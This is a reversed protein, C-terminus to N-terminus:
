SNLRDLKNKAMLLTSMAQIFESQAMLFTNHTQTLDMSSAVGEKYKVLTVDYVKNSLTMNAKTHSYNEFASDLDSQASAAELSLGEAAQQKANKAQEVAIAAKQVRAKQAGSKFIPINVNVGVLETQYWKEDSSFFNFSNRMANWQFTMFAAVTPLYKMKENKLDMETLKEQTKLLSFDINDELSFGTSHLTDLDIQELIKDLKDVLLIEENLDLGMQFKLLKFTVDQQRKITQLANKLKTVSIQVLDADTEAVFGEKYLENIEYHTKELNSLNGNLIRQSEELVLILYYTNTVTELVNLKTREHNQNALQKYIKAAQLGVFYSGNFLLQSVSFNVNTNHQTGFQVAIMEDFKGEFFNPILVTALKLNNMYGISSEIQPLGIALTEKMQKQATQIDLQSRKRDYSHTIAFDQASQLSFERVASDQGLVPGPVLGVALIGVFLSSLLKIKGRLNKSRRRMIM